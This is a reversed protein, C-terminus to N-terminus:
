PKFLDIFLQFSYIDNFSFIWYNVDFYFSESLLALNEVDDNTLVRLLISNKIGTITEKERKNNRLRGGKLNLEDPINM